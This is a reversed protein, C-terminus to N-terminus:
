MSKWTPYYYDQMKLRRQYISGEAPWKKPYVVEGGSLYGAWWSFTGVSIIVHNTRSLIALDVVPSHKESFVVNKSKFNRKCWDIDDSAIFFLVNKYKSQFHAMASNFYAMDPLPGTLAVMNESTMDGRRVHIGVTTIKGRANNSSHKLSSNIFSDADRIIDDQFRLKSKVDSEYNEFYRWAQLFGDLFIDTKFQKLNGFQQQHIPLQKEKVRKFTEMEAKEIIRIDKELHFYSTLYSRHLCLDMANSKAIAYGSAFQFLCNGLRGWFMVSVCRKTPNHTLNSQTLGEKGVSTPRPDSIGRALRSSNRHYKYGDTRPFEATRLQSVASDYTRSRAKTKVVVLKEESLDLNTQVEKLWEPSDQFNVTHFLALYTVGVLLALAFYRLRRAMLAPPNFVNKVAKHGLLRM